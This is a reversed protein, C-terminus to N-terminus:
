SLLYMEHNVKYDGFPITVQSTIPGYFETPLARPLNNGSETINSYLGRYPSGVIIERHSIEQKPQESVVPKKDCITELDKDKKTEVDASMISNQSTDELETEINEDASKNRGFGLLSYLKGLVM